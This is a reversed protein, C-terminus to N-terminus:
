KVVDVFSKATEYLRIKDIPLGAETLKKFCEGTMNEATTPFPLIDNLFQHDWADVIERKVIASIDAFDMIMGQKPGDQVIPGTITVELIYSHGHLNKCRGDHSPLSHAADFTFIKTISTKM